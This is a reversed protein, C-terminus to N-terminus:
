AFVISRITEGVDRCHDTIENKLAESSQEMVFAKGALRLMSLDNESDGFAFTQALPLSFHTAVRQLAIGKNSASLDFMSNGSVAIHAEDSWTKKFYPLVEELNGNCCVTIQHADQGVQAPDAISQAYSRNEYHKKRLPTDQQLSLYIRESTAIIALCDRALCDEYVGELVSRKLFVEDVLPKGKYFLASGNCCSFIVEEKVEQFLEQLSLYPRGSSICVLYGLETIQHILEIVEDSLRKNGYPLLTGDVDCFFIGKLAFQEM